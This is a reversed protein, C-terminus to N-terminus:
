SPERERSKVAPAEPGIDVRDQVVESGPVCLDHQKCTPSGFDPAQQAAREPRDSTRGESTSM